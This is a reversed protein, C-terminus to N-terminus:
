KRRCDFDFRFTQYRPPQKGPYVDGLDATADELKRKEKELQWAASDTKLDALM